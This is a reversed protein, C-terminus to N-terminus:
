NSVSAVNTNDNEKEARCAHTHVFTYTCVWVHVCEKKSGRSILNCTHQRRGRFEEIYIEKYCPHEKVYYQIIILM